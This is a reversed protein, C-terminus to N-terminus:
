AVSSISAPQAGHRSGPQYENYEEERRNQDAGNVHADRGAADKESTAPCDDILIIEPQLKALLLQLQLFQEIRTQDALM